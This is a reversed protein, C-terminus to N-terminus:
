RSDGTQKKRAINNSLIYDYVYIYIERERERQREFERLYRMNLILM